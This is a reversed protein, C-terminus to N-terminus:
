RVALLNVLRRSKGLVLGGAIFLYIKAILLDVLPISISPQLCKLCTSIKCTFNKLNENTWVSTEQLHHRDLKEKKTM